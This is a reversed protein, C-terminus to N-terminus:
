IVREQEKKKRIEKRRLSVRYRTYGIKRGNKRPGLYERLSEEFAKM